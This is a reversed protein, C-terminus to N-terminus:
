DSYPNTYRLKDGKVKYAAALEPYDKFYDTIYDKFGSFPVEQLEGGQRRLYWSNRSMGMAMAPGMGPMSSPVMASSELRAYFLEISGNVVRTALLHTPSGDVVMHEQYLGNVTISHVKDVSIAAAQRGFKRLEEETRYFSLIRSIGDVKVPVFMVFKKGNADVIDAKGYSKIRNGLYHNGIEVLLSDADQAAATKALGLFLSAFLLLRATM